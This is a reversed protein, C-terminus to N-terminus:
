GDQQSWFAILQDPQDTTMWGIGWDSLLQFQDPSNVTWPNLSGGKAQIRQVLQTDLIALDPGWFEFHEDPGLPDLESLQEFLFGLKTAGLQRLRRLVPLEFSILVVETKAANAIALLQPLSQQCHELKPKIEIFLQHVKPIKALFRELGSVTEGNASNDLTARCIQELPLQAVEGLQKADTTRDLDPDHLVLWHSDLALQVDFEYALRITESRGAVAYSARAAELSNEPGLGRGCRHAVITRQPPKPRDCPLM